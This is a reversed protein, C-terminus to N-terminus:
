MQYAIDTTYKRSSLKVVLRAIGGYSFIIVAVKSLLFFTLALQRVLLLLHVKAPSYPLSNQFTKIVTSSYPIGYFLM